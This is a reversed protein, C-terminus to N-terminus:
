DKTILCTITLIARELTGGQTFGTKELDVDMAVTGSNFLKLKKDKTEHQPAQFFLRYIWADCM